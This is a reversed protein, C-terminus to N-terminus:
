YGHGEQQAQDALHQLADKRQVGMKRKYEMLDTFLVRRHTGVVRFPLKGEELQKIVFPRSVGLLDAVQQTTLEAHIPILTVANGAALDKLLRLLLGVALAPLEFSDGSHEPLLRLPKDKHVLPNLHRIAEGAAKAEAPSPAVPDMREFLATAM